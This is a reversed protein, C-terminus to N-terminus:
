TYLNSFPFIRMIKLIKGNVITVLFVCFYAKLCNLLLMIRKFPSLIKVYNFKLKENFFYINGPINTSKCVKFDIFIGPVLFPIKRKKLSCKKITLVSIWDLKTISSNYRQRIKYILKGIPIKQLQIVRWKFTELKIFELIELIELKIFELFM